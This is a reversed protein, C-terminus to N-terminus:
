RYSSSYKRQLHALCARDPDTTVTLRNTVKNEKLMEEAYAFIADLCSMVRNKLELSEPGRGLVGEIVNEFKDKKLNQNRIELAAYSGAKRNVSEVDKLKLLSMELELIQKLHPTDAKMFEIDRVEILIALLMRVYVMFQQECNSKWALFAQTQQIVAAAAAGAGAATVEMM